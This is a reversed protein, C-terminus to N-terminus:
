VHRDREGRRLGADNERGTSLFLYVMCVVYLLICCLVYMRRRGFRDYILYILRPMGNATTAQRPTDPFLAHYTRVNAIIRRCDTMM